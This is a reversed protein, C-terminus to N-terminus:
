LLQAARRRVMLAHVLGVFGSACSYISVGAALRLLFVLTLVAPLIATSARHQDMTSPTMVASLGTLTACICALAADPKSLDKIWLFRSTGSLGRRVASFLGIFLPAQILTSLFSRLDILKIGYRRHLRATEEWVRQPEDKYRRRIRSLQPAIKKLAAQIELSRYALRLTLPLLAIRFTFSVMAIAFGMNGGMAVSLSSLTAYLHDVFDTWFGM